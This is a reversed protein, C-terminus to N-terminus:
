RGNEEEASRHVQVMVVVSASEWLIFLDTGIAQERTFNNNALQKSYEGSEEEASRRVQVIVVQM